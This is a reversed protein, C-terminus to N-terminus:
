PEKGPPTAGTREGPVPARRSVPAAAGAAALLQALMLTMSMGHLRGFERRTLSNAPLESISIIADFRMARIKLDVFVQSSALVLALALLVVVRTRSLRSARWEGILLFLPALLSIYHWRDLMAGVVNAAAVPDGAAKFAAPAALFGLFAGGGLWLAYVLFSVYGRNM